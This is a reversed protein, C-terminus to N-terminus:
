AEPERCDNNLKNEEGTTLYRKRDKFDDGNRGTQNQTTSFQLIQVFCVYIHLKAKFCM